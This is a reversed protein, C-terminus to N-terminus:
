DIDSGSYDRIYTANETDKYLNSVKTEDNRIDSNSIYM